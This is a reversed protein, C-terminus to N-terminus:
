ECGDQNGGNYHPNAIMRLTLEGAAVDKLKNLGTQKSPMPLM